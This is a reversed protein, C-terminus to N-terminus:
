AGGGDGLVKPVKFFPEDKDPANKLADEVSLGQAEKDERFVNFQDYAHPMPKVNEVDLQKLQDIAGLVDGLQSSFLKAEQDTLNLRALKAVERITQESIPHPM